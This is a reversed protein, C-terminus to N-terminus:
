LQSQKGNARAMLWKIIDSTFKETLPESEEGQMKLKKVQSWMFGPFWSKLDVFLMHTSGAGYVEHRHNVSADAMRKAIVGNGNKMFSSSNLFFTPVPLSESKIVDLPFESNVGWAEILFWGDIAVCAVFDKPNRVTALVATAAGYSFGSAFINTDDILSGLESHNLVMTKAAMVEKVRHNLQAERFNISYNEPDPHKYWLDQGDGDTVVCSSGDTHHVSAVVFGHSAISALLMSNEEGTGTLGHSFIVLPLKEGVPTANRSASPIEAYRMPIAFTFLSTFTSLAGYLWPRGPTFSWMYGKVFNTSGRFIYVPEPNAPKIAPYYVRVPAKTTELFIDKVGVYHVKSRSVNTLSAPTFALLWSM